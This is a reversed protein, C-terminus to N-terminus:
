SNQQLLFLYGLVLLEGRFIPRFGFPFEDELWGSEPAMNTEPLTNKICFGDGGISPPDDWSKYPDNPDGGNILWLYRGHTLPGMVSGM